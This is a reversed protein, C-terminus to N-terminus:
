IYIKIKTNNNNETKNFFIKVLKKQTLNLPPFNDKMSDHMCLTQDCMNTIEPLILFSNQQVNWWRMFSTVIM